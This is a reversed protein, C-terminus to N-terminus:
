FTWRVRILYLFHHTAKDLAGVAHHQRMSIHVGQRLPDGGGIQTSLAACGALVPLLLLM